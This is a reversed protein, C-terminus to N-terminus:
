LIYKVIRLKRGFTEHDQIEVIEGIVEPKEESFEVAPRELARSALYNWRGFRHINDKGLYKAVYASVKKITKGKLTKDLLRMDSFGLGWVDLSIKFRRPLSLFEAFTWGKGTTRALRSSERKRSAIVALDDSVLRVPLNFFVAHFHVSGREQREALALYRLANEVGFVARSYSRLFLRFDHM